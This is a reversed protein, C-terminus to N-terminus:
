AGGGQEDVAPALKMAGKGSRKVEYMAKDARAILEEISERSTGEHVAVGLSFHLPKEPSGSFRDLEEKGSVLLDKCRKLAIEEGAGELWIAFEDGGLRAVLDVPRTHQILLERVALLAQDGTQHGHVDNVAKFNDLDVYILTAPKGERALRGFRRSIEDFFARRNFLGTLGDTRSLKVVREHNTIQECALGVQNAVDDILLRDDDSWAARELGRWLLVAGNISHRYRCVTALVRWNGLDGDYHDSGIFSDLVPHEDGCEGFQASLEFDSADSLIRFIQCGTAGLARATAEAATKLMDSPDVEDRITRVIYGLLRERSNARSLAADRLREQTVDRCVGRAGKWEGADGRIPTASALLCAQSGDSQRMWVEVDEMEVTTEFPTQGVVGDELVVFDSPGRGVLEDAAFGMAGKPSVFVFRGDAGIEWAFDSSIEVLDKYRQRSEVLAARLNRELTVDRALVLMLGSDTPLAVLDLIMTGGSTMPLSEVATVGPKALLESLCGLRGLAIAAALTESRHNSAVILGDRDLLVAPGPFAALGDPGLTATSRTGFGTRGRQRESPADM